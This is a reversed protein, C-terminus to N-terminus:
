RSRRCTSAAVEDLAVRLELPQALGLLLLVVFDRPHPREDIPEAVLGGLGRLHLAADLHEVLDHRDFHRGFALAHM